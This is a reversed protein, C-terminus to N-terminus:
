LKEKKEREKQELFMEKEKKLEFRRSDRKSHHNAKQSKFNNTHGRQTQQFMREDKDM